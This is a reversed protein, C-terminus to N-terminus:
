LSATSGGLTFFPPGLPTISVDGKDWRRELSGGREGDGTFARRERHGLPGRGTRWGPASRPPLSNSSSGPQHRLSPSRSAHSQAHRDEKSHRQLLSNRRPSNKAASGLSATSVRDGKHGASALSEDRRGRDLPHPECAM